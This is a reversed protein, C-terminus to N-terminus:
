KRSRKRRLAVAAGLLAFLYPALDPRSPRAGVSCGGSTADPANPTTVGLGGSDQGPTVGAGGDGTPLPAGGDGQPLGGETTTSADPNIGGDDVTADTGADNPPPPSGCIPAAAFGDAPSSQIRAETAPGYQGDEAIKDNPNNLNWLRQFALVDTGSLSVAGAGVYDFHM